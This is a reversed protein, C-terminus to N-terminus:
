GHCCWSYQNSDNVASVSTTRSISVAVRPMASARRPRRNRPSVGRGAATSNSATSVAAPPSWESRSTRNWSITVTSGSEKGVSVTVSLGSRPATRANVTWSSSPLRHALPSSPRPVAIPVISSSQASCRQRPYTRFGSNWSSAARSPYSNSPGNRASFCAHRPCSM